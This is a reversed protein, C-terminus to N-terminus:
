DISSSTYWKDIKGFYKLKKKKLIETKEFKITYNQNTLLLENM